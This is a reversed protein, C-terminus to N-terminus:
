QDGSSMSTGIHGCVLANMRKSTTAPDFAPQRSSAEPKRNAAARRRASELSAARANSAQASLAPAPATGRRGCVSRAVKRQAVTGEPIVGIM